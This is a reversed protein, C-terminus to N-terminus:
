WMPLGGYAVSRPKQKRREVEAKVFECYALFTAGCEDSRARDFTEADQKRYALHKMWDMLALHHDEAVGTFPQATATISGVPMRYAVLQVTDAADPITTWRALGDQEGIVMGKVPGVVVAPRPFEPSNYIKVAGGDSVRYASMVRLVAANLAGLPQAAVVPIQVTVSTADAIGDTKRVFMRYAANMYTFVELDSWLYPQEADSVDARFLAYLDASTM